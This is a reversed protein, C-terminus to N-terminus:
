PNGLKKVFRCGTIEFGISKYFEHAAKREEKIGSTLVITRSGCAIAWEEIFNILSEGTWNLSL